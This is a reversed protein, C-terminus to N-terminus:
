QLALTYRCQGEHWSDAPHDESEPRVQLTRVGFFILLATAAIDDVPIGNFPLVQDAKHLIEGLAVQM